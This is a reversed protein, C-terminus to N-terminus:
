PPFPDVHGNRVPHRNKDSDIRGRERRCCLSKRSIEVDTVAEKLETEKSNSRPIRRRGNHRQGGQRHHLRKTEPNSISYTYANQCM